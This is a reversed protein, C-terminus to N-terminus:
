KFNFEVKHIKTSDVQGNKDLISPPMDKLLVSNPTLKDDELTRVNYEDVYAHHIHKICFTELGQALLVTSHNAYGVFYGNAHKPFSSPDVTLGIYNWPDKKTHAALQKKLHSCSISYVKSRFVYLEKANLEYNSDLWKVIFLNKILRKYCHNMVYIAYMFAFCWVLDPMAAGILFARIITKIPKSSSHNLLVM